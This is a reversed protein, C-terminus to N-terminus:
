DQYIGILRKLKNKLGKWRIIQRIRWKQFPTMVDYHIKFERWLPDLEMPDFEHKRNEPIYIKM